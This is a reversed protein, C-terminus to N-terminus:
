SVIFQLFSLHIELVRFFNKRIGYRSELFIILALLWPPIVLSLVM